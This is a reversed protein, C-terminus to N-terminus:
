TGVLLVQLALRALSGLSHQARPMVRTHPLLRLCVYLLRATRSTAVTRKCVRLAVVLVDCCEQGIPLATSQTWPWVLSSQVLCQVALRVEAGTRQILLQPTISYEDSYGAYGTCQPIASALSM